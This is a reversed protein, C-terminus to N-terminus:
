ASDTSTLHRGPDELYKEEHALGRCRWPHSEFAVRELLHGCSVAHDWQSVEQKWGNMTEQYEQQNKQLLLNIIDLNEVYKNREFDQRIKLRVM